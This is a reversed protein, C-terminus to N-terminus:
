GMYPNGRWMLEKKVSAEEKVSEIYAVGRYIREKVKTKFKDTVARFQGETHQVGRYFRVYIKRKTTSNM